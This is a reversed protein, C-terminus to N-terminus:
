GSCFDKDEEKECEAIFRDRAIERSLTRGANYLGVMLGFAVLGVTVSYDLGFRRELWNGILAGVCIPLGLDWGLSMARMADAWAARWIARSRREQREPSAGGSNVSPISDESGL